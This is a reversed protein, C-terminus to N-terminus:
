LSTNGFWGWFVETALDVTWGIGTSCAPGSTPTTETWGSPIVECVTYVGLPLNTFVFSGASDTVATATIPGSVRVCWGPLGTESGDDAFVQGSLSEVGDAPTSNTCGVTGGGTSGGGTSGGGTSGGGTSGGGTDGSGSDSSCDEHRPQPKPNHKRFHARAQEHREKKDMSAHLLRECWPHDPRHDPKHRGQSVGAVFPTAVLALVVMFARTM